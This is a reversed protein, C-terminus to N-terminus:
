LKSKRNLIVRMFFLLSGLLPSIIYWCTALNNIVRPDYGAQKEILQYIISIINSKIGGINGIKALLHSCINAARSCERLVM